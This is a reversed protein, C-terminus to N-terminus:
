GLGQILNLIHCAVLGATETRLTTHGLSTPIFGANRALLIEEPSFDGEPGILVLYSNKKKAQHLLLGREKEDLHAIFKQSAHTGIIQNFSILNEIEPLWAQGSQKMAAVAVKTIRELNIKSRESHQTKLFSIKQIGIETAKEVFWEIREASKTPAIAIHISYNPKGRKEVDLIKLSCIKGSTSSIQCRYIQGGGDTVSITDGVSHRLVKIAHISEDWDLQHFGSSLRPQFFLNL